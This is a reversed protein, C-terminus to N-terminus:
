LGYKLPFVYLGFDGQGIYLDLRVMGDRGMGDMAWGTLYYMGLLWGRAM